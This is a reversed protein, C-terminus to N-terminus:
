VQAIEPSPSAYALGGIVCKSMKKAFDLMSKRRNRAVIIPVHLRFM